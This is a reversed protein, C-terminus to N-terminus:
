LNWDEAAQLRWYIPEPRADGRVHAALTARTPTTPAPAGFPEVANKAWVAFRDRTATDQVAQVLRWRAWAEADAPTRPALPVRPIVTDDFTGWAGLSPRRVALDRRFSAREQVTTDDFSVRLVDHEADWNNLVGAATLVASWADKHRLDPEAIGLTIAQGRLEGRITATTRDPALEVEMTLRTEGVVGHEAQPGLEDFRARPYRGHLVPLIQSEIERVADPLQIFKRPREGRKSRQQDDFTTPEQYPELALVPSPLLRDRAFWLTWTGHEPVFIAGSEVSSRGSETLEFTHDSREQLLGLGACARLLREAVARRGSLLHEALRAASTPGEDFVIRLVAPEWERETELAIKAVINWPEVPLQRSLRLAPKV